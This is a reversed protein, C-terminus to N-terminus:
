TSVEGSSDHRGNGFVINSYVGEKVIFMILFSSWLKLAFV